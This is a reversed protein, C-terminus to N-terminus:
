KEDLFDLLGEYTKEALLEFVEDRDDGNFQREYIYGYEILVSASKLSNNSGIAILDSDEIIIDSEIELDSESFETALKQRIKEALNKSKEYNKYDHHPIYISFGSYEGRGDGRGPYDNFHIHLVIDIKNENSWKNIGHLKISVEEPARVQIIENTPEVKGFDMLNSTFKEYFNRFKAIEVINDEFYKLFTHNYGDSNRVLYIESSDYNDFKSQELITYVKEAVVLNMEQETVDLYETGYNEEDHGPVILIKLVGDEDASVGYSDIAEQLSNDIQSIINIDSLDFGAGEVGHIRTEWIFYAIGVMVAALTLCIIPVIKDSNNQM